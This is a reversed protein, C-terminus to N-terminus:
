QLRPTELDFGRKLLTITQALGGSPPRKRKGLRFDRAVTSIFSESQAGSATM